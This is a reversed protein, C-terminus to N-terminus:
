YYQSVSSLEYSDPLLCPTGSSSPREMQLPFPLGKKKVSRFVDEYMCSSQAFVCKGFVSKSLVVLVTM